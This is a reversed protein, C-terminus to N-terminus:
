RRRETRLGPAPAMSMLAQLDLRGGTFIRGRLNSTARASRLVAMRVEGANLNSQASWFLAAAGAVIPAAMSTGDMPGFRGGPLTSVIGVGPSALHVLTAGYNSFDALRGDPGTAAVTLMNDFNFSGPTAALPRHDVNTTENGAAVVSLRGRARAEAFIEKIAQSAATGDDEGGWSNSLIHAGNDLAYKVAKVADSDEGIGRESMFRIPMIRVNPAIGRIGFGNGAVGAIIGACHTGHGPNGNPGRGMIDYPKNDNQVFDWGMFDDVFGNQDDDIGNRAKPGAEGPNIWINRNLDPHNYDVGTDIVAVIMRPDGGFPIQLKDSGIDQLHWQSAIMPDVGQGQPIQVLEPDMSAVPVVSTSGDARAFARIRGNPEVWRTGPIRSLSTGEQRTVAEMATNIVYWGNFRLDEVSVVRLGNQQLVQKLQEPHARRDLKMMWSAAQVQSFSLSIALALGLIRLQNKL